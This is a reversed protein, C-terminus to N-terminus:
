DSTLYRAIAIKLRQIPNRNGFWLRKVVYKDRMVDFQHYYPVARIVGKRLLVKVAYIAVIGAGINISGMSSPGRKEELNTKKMYPRQLLAPVLGVLFSVLKKQYSMGDHIAFYDDFNPGGPMFILFASGFGIPGATIVPINRQLSQNFFLRRTDVAFADLADVSLDVGDLFHAINTENIGDSFVEIQCQPNIKLVEEKMVDVKSRGLTDMRAGYQRNFNKLEYTDLDAIKFKQFGQRVLAILNSGGGGGMGPIAVVASAIKQQEAESVLGINRLFAEQYNFKTEM